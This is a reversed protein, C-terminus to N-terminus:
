LLFEGIDANSRVNPVDDSRKVSVSEILDDISASNDQTSGDDSETSDPVSQEVDEVPFVNVDALDDLDLRPHSITYDRISDDLEGLTQIQEALEINKGKLNYNEEILEQAHKPSIWGFVSAFDGVCDACLYFTGYWEFDLNDGTAFGDPHNPKGCLACVGPSAVPVQIHQVRAAASGSNAELM